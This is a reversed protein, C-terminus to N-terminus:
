EGTVFPYSPRVRGDLPLVVRFTTGRGEASRVGVTGGHGEIVERVIALGLGTGEAAFRKANPARVFETFVEALFDAPIGIGHDQVEVEAAVGAGNVALRVSVPGGDNSYKIANHVLNEFAFALDPAIGWPLV